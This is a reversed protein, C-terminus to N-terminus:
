SFSPIESGYKETEMQSPHVFAYFVVRDYLVICWSSAEKHDIVQKYLYKVRGDGINFKAVDPPWLTKFFPDDRYGALYEDDLMDARIAYHNPLIEDFHHRFLGKVIKQIIRRVRKMEDEGLLLAPVTGLYIGSKEIEINGVLKGITTKFKPNRGFSRKVPGRWLQKGTADFTARAAIITRVFEEDKSFGKNCNNCADVIIPETPQPPNFFGRSFM